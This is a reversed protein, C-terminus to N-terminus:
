KINRHNRVIETYSLTTNPHQKLYEQVIKDNSRTTAAKGAAKIAGIGAVTGATSPALTRVAVDMLAKMKARDMEQEGIKRVNDISTKDSGNFVIIPKKSHFGSYKKDNVDMIADYGKSTLKNYFGKHVSESTPRTHDALSINLADYVKSDIKGKKLSELGKEIAKNQEPLVYQGKVLGLHVQLKKGYEPDDKVLESLASVASKESAVKLKKNVGIKTEYVHNGMSRISDGYVGRYKTNDMNTMSAYFADSVGRNSNSSINQLTTGAQIFKDVRKDHQKYAVYAAAATVTVGATLAIIKETKERKYAAIESEQKTMGKDLYGQELKLRRDSKAKQESNLKQKVKESKLDQKAWDTKMISDTYKKAAKTNPIYGFVTARNYERHARKEAKKATKLNEKAGEIDVSYRKKGSPTLSGDKNQFRRVGWRM